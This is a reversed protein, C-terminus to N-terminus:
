SRRLDLSPRHKQEASKADILTVVTKSDRKELHLTATDGKTLKELSSPANNLMVKADSAVDHSSEKDSQTRITIRGAGASIVTGVLMEDGAFAVVLNSALALIGLPACFHM